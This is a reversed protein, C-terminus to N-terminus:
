REGCRAGPPWGCGPGAEGRLDPIPRQVHRQCQRTPMARRTQGTGPPQRLTRPRRNRGPDGSGRGVSVGPISTVLATLDLAGLVEVMRTEVEALRTKAARWDALVWRARELAGRRQAWVGTPDILAVFM